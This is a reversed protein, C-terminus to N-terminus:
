NDPKRAALWMHSSLRNKALFEQFPGGLEDWRDVLVNKLFPQDALSITGGLVAKRVLEADLKGPTQVDHVELGCGAVMKSISGPHFYNLHEHDFTGSRVNLTAVDFGAVNPCSLVLLGGRRLLRRAHRIFDRPSFLHEIVEFAVVVDAIAEGQVDEVMQELVHFGRQRCTEALDPTPEVAIIKEFLGTGRAEECFTGFAAGIELLTAKSIELQRCYDALRQARPRFIQARRTAETAPFIHANWFAYNQSTAYFADLLERSPRPNTYVTACQRCEVYRFGRKEGYLRWSTADCAPCAVDVWRGKRDLLFQRDADICSQKDSMLHAPRIQEESIIGNNIVMENM